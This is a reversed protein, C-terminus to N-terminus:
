RGAHRRRRARFHSPALGANASGRDTSISALATAGASDVASLRENHRKCLVNGVLRKPPIKKEGEASWPLGHVLVEPGDFVCASLVHEGSIGGGCDGLVSAWCTRM